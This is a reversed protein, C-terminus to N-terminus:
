VLAPPARDRAFRTFRPQAPAPLAAVGIPQPELLLLVRPALRHILRRAAPLLRLVFALMAGAAAGFALLHMWGGGLTAPGGLVDAVVAQGGIAAWIGASAVIWLLAPATRRRAVRTVLGAIAATYLGLVIIAALGFRGGSTATELCSRVDPGCAFSVRAQDVAAALLPLLVFARLALPLRAIAARVHM